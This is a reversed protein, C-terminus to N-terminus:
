IRSESELSLLPVNDESKRNQAVSKSFQFLVWQNFEVRLVWFM